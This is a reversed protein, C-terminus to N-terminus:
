EKGQPNRCFHPHTLQVIQEPIVGKGQPNWPRYWQVVTAGYLIVNM